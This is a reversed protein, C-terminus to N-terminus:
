PGVWLEYNYVMVYWYVSYLLDRVIYCNKLNPGVRERERYISVCMFCVLFFVELLFFSAACNNNFDM